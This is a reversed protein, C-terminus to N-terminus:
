RRQFDNQLIGPRVERFSYLTVIARLAGQPGPLGLGVRL